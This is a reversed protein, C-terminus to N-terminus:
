TTKPLQTAAVHRYELHLTKSQNLNSPHITDSRRLKLPTQKNNRNVYPVEPAMPKPSHIQASFMTNHQYRLFLIELILPEFSRLLKINISNTHIRSLSRLLSM